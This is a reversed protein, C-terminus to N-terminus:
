QDDDRLEAFHSPVEGSWLMLLSGIQGKHCQAKYKKSDLHKRELFRTLAASSPSGLETLGRATAPEHNTVSGMDYGHHKRLAALVLADADKENSNRKSTRKAAPVYSHRPAGVRNVPAGQRKVLLQRWASAGLGEQTLMSDRTMLPPNWSCAVALAFTRETGTLLDVQEGYNMIEDFLKWVEIPIDEFHQTM